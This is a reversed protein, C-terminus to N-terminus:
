LGHEQSLREAVAMDDPTNVNFFPDYPTAEFLISRCGIQDAWLVIKRLGGKLAVELAEARDVPWLAFTPQRNAGRVPDPTAAMAIPTSPSIGDRLRDVLDQPFFPTDGAVSAVHSAGVSRGWLMGALVGALPGLHGPLPDTLLPAELDRYADPANTSVAIRDVQPSLRALGRSILSSGLLPLLAKQGGGMRTSKGGSLILGAVQTM